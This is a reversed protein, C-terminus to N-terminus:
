NLEFKKPQTQIPKASVPNVTTPDFFSSNANKNTSDILEELKLKRTKNDKYDLILAQAGLQALTQTAKLNHNLKLVQNDINSQIDQIIVFACLTIFVSISLILSFILKVQFNLGNFFDKVQNFYHKLKYIFTNEM